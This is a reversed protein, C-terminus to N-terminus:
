YGLNYNSFHKNVIEKTLVLTDFEKNENVSDFYTEYKLEDYLSIISSGSPRILKRDKEDIVIAQKQTFKTLRDYISKFDVDQEYNISSDNDFKQRLMAVASEPSPNDMLLHDDIRGKRIVAPDLNEKFNTACILLVRSHASRIGSDEMNEGSALYDLLTGRIVNSMGYFALSDFEDFFLVVGKHKNCMKSLRIVQDFIIQINDLQKSVYDSAFDKSLVKVFYFDNDKAVAQALMTKANGPPGYLLIGKSIKVGFKLAKSKEKESYTIYKAQREIREKVVEYGIIDKSGMTIDYPELVQVPINKQLDEILKRENAELVKLLVERSESNDGLNAIKRFSTNKIEENLKKVFNDIDRGSMNVTKSQIENLYHKGDLTFGYKEFKKNFIRIRNEANPLGIPIRETLRSQIAEDIINPRNTAAIVFIKDKGSMMGDIEQLFQNVMDLNYSDSSNGGLDRSPFVTDAEDIFMITPSNARAEDFIRKVKGSTQGVYEGKLDSLKPAMFYTNYENSLAKVIQTKGTGPPGTLIFGKRFENNDNNLFAEVANVIIRKEASDIIVDKLFVKEETIKEIAVEFDTAELVKNKKEIVITELVQIAERLSKKSSAIAQSIKRAQDFIDLQVDKGDFETRGLFTILYTYYIEEASPNGLYIVNSGQTEFSYKKLLEVDELSVVTYCQDVKYFDKLIKIYELSDNNNSSYLKALWEFDEFFIVTKGTAINKDQSKVKVIGLNNLIEVGSSGLFNELNKVVPDRKRTEPEGGEDKDDPMENDEKDDPILYDETIDNISGNKKRLVNVGDTCVTVFIECDEQSLFCSSVADRLSIAGKDLGCLFVDKIGEGYLFFFRKGKQLSKTLPSDIRKKFLGNVVDVESLLKKLVIKYRM